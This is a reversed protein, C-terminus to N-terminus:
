FAPEMLPAAWEVAVVEVGTLAGFGKGACTGCPVGAPRHGPLGCGPCDVMPLVEGPQPQRWAPVAGPPRDWPTAEKPTPAPRRRQLQAAFAASVLLRAGSAPVRAALFNVPHRMQSPLDETVLRLLVPSPLGERLARAVTALAYPDHAERSSLYPVQQLVAAADRDFRDARGPVQPVEVPVLQVPVVLRFRDALRVRRGSAGQVDVREFVVLEATVLHGRHRKGTREAVGSLEYWGQTTGSWGTRALGVLLLGCVRDPIPQASAWTLPDADLPLRESGRGVAVGTPTRRDSELRGHAELHALHSRVVSEDRLGIRAGIEAVTLGTAASRDRVEGGDTSHVKVLLAYIEACRKCDDPQM